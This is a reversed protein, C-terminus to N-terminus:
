LSNHEGGSAGLAEGPEESASVDRHAVGRPPVPLLACVIRAGLGDIAQMAVVGHGMKRKIIKPPKRLLGCMVLQRRQQAVVAPLRHRLVHHLHDLVALGHAMDLLTLVVVM